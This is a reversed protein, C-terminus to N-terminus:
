HKWGGKPTLVPTPKEKYPTEPCDMIPGGREKAEGVTQVGLMLLAHVSQQLIIIAQSLMQVTVADEAKMM